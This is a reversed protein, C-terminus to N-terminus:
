FINVSECNSNANWKFIFLYNQYFVKVFMDLSLEFKVFTVTQIKMPRADAIQMLLLM